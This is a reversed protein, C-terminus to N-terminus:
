KVYDSATRPKLKPRVYETMWRDALQAITTAGAALAAERAAKEVVPDKGSRLADLLGRAERRADALKKEPYLGVTIKRQRGGSRARIIFLRKGAPTVRVGFGPLASDFVIRDRGDLAVADIAAETLKQM